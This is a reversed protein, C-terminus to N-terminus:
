GEVAAHTQMDFQAAFQIAFAIGIVVNIRTAVRDAAIAWAIGFLLILPLGTRDVPYETRLIFHAAVFGACTLLFTISPLLRIDRHRVYAICTSALIFVCIALM